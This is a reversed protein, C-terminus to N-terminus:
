VSFLKAECLSFFLFIAHVNPIFNLHVSLTKAEPARFWARFFVYYFYYEHLVSMKVIWLISKHPSALVYFCGQCLLCNRLDLGVGRHWWACSPPAMM